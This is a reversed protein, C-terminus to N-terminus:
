GPDTSNAKKMADFMPGDRGDYLTVALVDPVDENFRKKYKAFM